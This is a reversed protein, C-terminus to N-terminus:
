IHNLVENLGEKTSDLKRDFDDFFERTLPQQIDENKETDFYCLLIEDKECIIQGHAFKNRMDFVKRLNTRLNQFDEKRLRNHQTTLVKFAKCKAITSCWSQTLFSNYFLTGLHGGKPILINILIRDLEKELIVLQIIIEGIISQIEELDQMTEKRKPSRKWDPKTPNYFNFSFPPKERFKRTM